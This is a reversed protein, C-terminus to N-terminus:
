LFPLPDGKLYALAQSTAILRDKEDTVKIECHATKKTRHVERAEATLRSGLKPTALYSIGMNLAVAVSGHANCAIQFAEDALSFIAGGHSMGLINALDLTVDMEVRAFGEHFDILRIGLKRSYPEDKIRAQLAERLSEEM